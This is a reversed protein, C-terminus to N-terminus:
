SSPIRRMTSSRFIRRARTSGSLRQDTTMRARLVTDTNLEIRSGDAFTVSERGGIPTTYTRDHPQLFYNTAAVGLVATIGVAAAIKIFLPLRRAPERAVSDIAPQSLAGLTQTRNWAADLRWYALLHAPSQALWADLAAQDEATWEKAERRETIWEAARLQVDRAPQHEPNSM